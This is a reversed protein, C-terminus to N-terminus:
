VLRCIMIKRGGVVGIPAEADIKLDQRGSIHSRLRTMTM